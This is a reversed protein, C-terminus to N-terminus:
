KLYFEFATPYVGGQSLGVETALPTSVALLNCDTGSAADCLFMRNFSTWNGAASFNVQESRISACDAQQQVVQWDASTATLPKREYGDGVVERIDEMAMERDVANNYCLGVYYTKPMESNNGRFANDLLIEDFKSTIM